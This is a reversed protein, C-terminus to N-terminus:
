GLAAVIALWRTRRTATGNAQELERLRRYAKDLAAMRQEYPLTGFGWETFIPVKLWAHSADAPEEYEFVETHRIRLGAAALLESLEDVTPRPRRPGSPPPPALGYDYVAVAHMLEFLSPTVHPEEPTVPPDLRMFRSAINFALVGGARLVNRVAAFTASLDSQWIASNCVVADVQTLQDSATDFSELRATVWSVRRDTIRQRAVAQM